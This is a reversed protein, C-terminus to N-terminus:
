VITTPDTFMCDLVVQVDGAYVASANTLNNLCLHSCVIQSPNAGSTCAYETDGVLTASAMGMYKAIDCTQTIYATNGNTTVATKVLGGQTAQQYTTLAGAGTQISSIAIIIPDQTANTNTSVSTIRYTVKANIVYCKTFIAMLKAFEGPSTASLGACPQYAGNLTVVQLDTFTLAAITTAVIPFAWVLPVRQHQAIGGLHYNLYSRSLFRSNPRISVARTKKANANEATERRRKTGAFREVTRKGSPITM